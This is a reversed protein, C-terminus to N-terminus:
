PRRRPKSHTGKLNNEPSVLLFGCKEPSAWLCGASKKPPLALFGFVQGLNSLVVRLRRGGRLADNLVIRLLCCKLVIGGLIIIIMLYDFVFLM